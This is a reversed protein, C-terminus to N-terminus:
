FGVPGAKSSLILIGKCSIWQIRQWVPVQYVSYLPSALGIPSPFFNNESLSLPIWEIWGLDITNLGFHSDLSAFGKCYFIFTLLFFPFLLVNRFLGLNNIIDWSHFLNSVQLPDIPFHAFHISIPLDELIHIHIYNYNGCFIKPM